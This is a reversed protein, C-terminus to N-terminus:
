QVKAARERSERRMKSTLDPCLDDFLEWLHQGAAKM